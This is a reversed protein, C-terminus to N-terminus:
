PTPRSSRRSSRRPCVRPCAFASSAPPATAAASRFCEEFAGPSPAATEPLVKSEKVKAWFESPTLDRRDVYEDDGFRISLPVIDINHDTCISPPLDCSSDTVIRITM